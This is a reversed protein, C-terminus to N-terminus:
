SLPLWWVLRQLSDGRGRSLPALIEEFPEGELMGLFRQLGAAKRQLLGEPM